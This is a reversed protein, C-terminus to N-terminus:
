LRQLSTVRGGVWFILGRKKIFSSLQLAAELRVEYGLLQGLHKRAPRTVRCMNSCSLNHGRLEFALCSSTEASGRGFVKVFAFRKMSRAVNWFILSGGGSSSLVQGRLM